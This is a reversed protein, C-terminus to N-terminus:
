EEANEELKVVDWIDRVQQAIQEPTFIGTKEVKLRFRRIARSQNTLARNRSTRPELCRAITADALAIVNLEKAM